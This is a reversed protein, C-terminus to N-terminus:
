LPPVINTPKWFLRAHTLESATLKKRYWNFLTTPTSTTTLRRKGFCAYIFRLDNVGTNIQNFISQVAEYDSKFGELREAIVNAIEFCEVDSLFRKETPFNGNALPLTPRKLLEKYALNAATLWAPMAERGITSTLPNGTAAAAAAKSVLSYGVFAVVAALALNINIPQQKM